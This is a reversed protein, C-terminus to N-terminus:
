KGTRASVLANAARKFMDLTDLEDVVEVTPQEGKWASLSRIAAETKPYAPNIVFSVELLDLDTVEREVSGDDNEKWNQERVYFGFSMQLDGDELASRQMDSMRAVDMEFELGKDTQALTLKGSRTSGLPMSYDHAWLAFVNRENSAVEDLSRTFAGAAIREVFCGLDVSDSGFPAALGFAKKDERVELSSLKISRTELKDM